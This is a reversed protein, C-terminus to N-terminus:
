AIVLMPTNHVPFRYCLPIVLSFHQLKCIFYMRGWLPRKEVILQVECVDGAASDTALVHNFYSCVGKDGVNSDKLSQRTKMIVMKIVTM